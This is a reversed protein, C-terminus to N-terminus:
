YNKYGLRLLKAVIGIVLVGIWIGTFYKIPEAMLFDAVDALWLEFFNLMDQM